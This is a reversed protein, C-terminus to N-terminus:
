IVYLWHLAHLYKYVSKFVKRHGEANPHLGDLLDQVSLVWQIDLFEVWATDCFAKVISMYTAFENNKYSYRNDRHVPVTLSEDAYLSSVFLIRSTYKKAKKILLQINETFIDAEVSHNWTSNWLSADNSWIAFICIIEGPEIRLLTEISSDLQRLIGETTNGSISYNYVSFHFWEEFWKAKLREVRWWQEGDFAGWSISDGFVVIKM